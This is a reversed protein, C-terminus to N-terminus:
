LKYLRMSSCNPVYAFKSNDDSSFNCWCVYDKGAELKIITSLKSSLVYEPEASSNVINSVFDREYDAMDDSCIGQQLYDVVISRKSTNRICIQTSASYYGTEDVTFSCYKLVGDLPTDPLLSQELIKNSAAKPKSLIANIKGSNQQNGFRSSTASSLM